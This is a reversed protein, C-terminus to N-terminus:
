TCLRSCFYGVSSLIVTIVGMMVYNIISHMCIYTNWSILNLQWTHVLAITQLPSKFSCISALCSPWTNLHAFQLLSILLRNLRLFCSSLHTLPFSHEHLSIPGVSLLHFPVSEILRTVYMTSFLFLWSIIFYCYHSGDYHLKYHQAYLHVHKLFHPENAMYAVLYNDAVPIQLLMHLGFMLATHELTCIAVFFHAASWAESLVLVPSHPPFSHEHLSIPGVSLLHFPVSEILRTVYMTLFLFLWSIIFYCYHSGDYHLKYHQVYVHVQKLFHPETAMYAGLCNDAVPIQLLMHLGFMLATHELTCIAVFFHAASWFARPCTHSPSVTNM